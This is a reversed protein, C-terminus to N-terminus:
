LGKRMANAYTLQDFYDLWYKATFKYQNEYLLYDIWLERFRCLEKLQPGTLNCDLTLDTLELSRYFALKADGEEGKNKSNITRYVESGINAMQDLFHKKKWEGSAQNSHQM